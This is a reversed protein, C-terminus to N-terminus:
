HTTKNLHNIIENLRIKIYDYDAKDEAAKALMRTADIFDITLTRKADMACVNQGNKLIRVNKKM